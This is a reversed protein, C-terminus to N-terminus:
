AAVRQLREKALEIYQPELEFSIFRRGTKKAAVCESGSGGFPVLVIDGPNSSKRILFEILDEPKEHNHRLRAPPVRDFPLIDTHRSIGDVENLDRRGKQCFLINEYQGAYAGRLDGMSRGNKMWILSNKVLFFKELLPQQIKVKDWRTFWYVHSNPKLVRNIEFIVTALFEANDLGDNQIGKASLLPKVKRNNSTFNIGYPPDVVALNVSEDPLQRMGVICDMHYVCDLEIKTCCYCNM